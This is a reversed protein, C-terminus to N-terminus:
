FHHYGKKEVAHIEGGRDVMQVWGKAKRSVVEGIIHFENGAANFDRQLRSVQEPPLTGVLVYDEGGYLIWDLPNAGIQDAYARLNSDVPIRDEELVMGVQSAEAIEWTESALGDSVDNLAHCVGSRQLIRGAEICPSPKRHALVIDRLAAPVRSISLNFQKRKMLYDLGAASRGLRGTIFIKDGPEATSRLLGKNAEIEGILTISLTFDHLSSTTDGGTIATKYVDACEYLGSYIKKLRLQSYKRPLSLSVLAFKPIAGMAAIDSINAAMAKYGIDADQMTWRNFHIGEVVTDCTMVLQSGQSIRAVAADDGIGVTVGQDHLFKKSQKQATLKSILAFEDLRTM